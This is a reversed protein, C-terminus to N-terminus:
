SLHWIHWTQTSHLDRERKFRSQCYKILWAPINRIPSVVSRTNLVASKRTPSHAVHRTYKYNHSVLGLQPHLVSTKASGHRGRPAQFSVSPSILPRLTTHIPFVPLIWSISVAALAPLSKSAGTSRSSQHVDRGTLKEVTQWDTQFNRRSMPIYKSHQQFIPSFLDSLSSFPASTFFVQKQGERFDIVTTVSITKYVQCWHTYGTIFAPNIEIWM